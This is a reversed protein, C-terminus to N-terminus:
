ESFPLTATTGPKLPSLKMRRSSVGARLLKHIEVLANTDPQQPALLRDALIQWLPPTTTISDCNGGVTTTPFGCVWPCYYRHATIPQNWKSSMVRRRKAQPSEDELNTGVVVAIRTLPQRSLCFICEVAASSEENDNCRLDWGTLVLASASESAEIEDPTEISPVSPLPEADGDDDFSLLRGVLRKLLTTASDSKTGYYLMYTPVDLPYNFAVVRPYLNLWRQRFLPWPASHEVLELSSSQTPLLRALPTPIVPQLGKRHLEQTSSLATNILYESNKRHWCQIAHAQWLNQQYQAALKYRATVSLTPPILISIVAKCNECTLYVSFAPAKRTVLEPCLQWGTAACLIPSLSVPKAFYQATTFTQLRELYQECRRSCRDESPTAIMQDLLHMTTAAETVDDMKAEQIPKPQGHLSLSLSLQVFVTRVVLRLAFAPNQSLLTHYIRTNVEHKTRTLGNLAGFRFGCPGSRCFNTCSQRQFFEYTSNSLFSRGCINLLGDWSRPLSCRAAFESKGSLRRSPGSGLRNLVEKSKM